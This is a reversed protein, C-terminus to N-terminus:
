RINKFIINQNQDHLIEMNLLKNIKKDQKEKLPWISHTFHNNDLRAFISTFSTFPRVGKSIASSYWCTSHMLSRFTM